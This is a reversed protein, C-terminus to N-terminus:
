FDKLSDILIPIIMFIKGDRNIRKKDIVILAWIGNLNGEIM